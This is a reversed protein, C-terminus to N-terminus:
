LHVKLDDGVYVYVEGFGKCANSLAEGVRGLGRDWFGVGHGNRTLYFDHGASEETYDIRGDRTKQTMTYAKALLEANEEQFRKCDAIIKVWASESIDEEDYDGPIDKQQGEEERERWEPYVNGNEDAREDRSTGPENEIWFMSTVYAQTFADLNREM